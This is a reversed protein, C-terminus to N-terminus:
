ACTPCSTRPPCGTSQPGSRNKIRHYGMESCSACAGWVCVCVCECARVCACVRV